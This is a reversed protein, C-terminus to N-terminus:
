YSDPLWVVQESYFRSHDAPIIASDAMIYDIYSAGMTGPYGLYNVQIPAARRAFIDFRANQTHGKLDVVIDIELRRILEAIDRDSDNRVDVFQEFAQSIRHRMQSKDDPGFSIATVDFRSKDHQEFLGAALYATAHEHFDASM